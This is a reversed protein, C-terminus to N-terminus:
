EAEQRQRRSMVGALAAPAARAARGGDWTVGSVQSAVWDRRALGGQAHSWWRTQAADDDGDHGAM